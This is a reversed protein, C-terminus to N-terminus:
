NSTSSSPSANGSSESDDPASAGTSAFLNSNELTASDVSSSPVLVGSSFELKVTKAGPESSSSLPNITFTKGGVLLNVLGCNMNALTLSPLKLSIPSGEKTKLVSPKRAVDKFVERMPAVLSIKLVGNSFIESGQSKVSSQWNPASTGAEIGSSLNKECSGKLKSNLYAIGNRRAVIEAELGARKAGGEPSYVGFFQVQRSAYDLTIKTEKKSEQAFLQLPTSFFLLAFLTLFVKNLKLRVSM